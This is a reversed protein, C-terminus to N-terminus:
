LTPPTPSPIPQLTFPAPKPFDQEQPDNFQDDLAQATVGPLGGAQGTQCEGWKLSFNHNPNTGRYVMTVILRDTRRDYRVHGFNDARASESLFAANAALILWFLLHRQGNM